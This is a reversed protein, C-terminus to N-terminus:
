ETTKQSSYKGRIEMLDAKLYVPFKAANNEEEKLYKELPQKFWEKLSNDSVFNDAVERCRDSARMRLVGCPSDDLTLEVELLLSSTENVPSTSSVAAADDSAVVGNNAICVSPVPVVPPLGAAASMNPPLDEGTAERSFTDESSSGASTTSSSAPVGGNAHKAVGNSKSEEEDPAGPGASDPGLEQKQAGPSSLYSFFSGVSPTRDKDDAEETATGFGSLFSFGRSIKKSIKEGLEQGQKSIQEGVDQLGGEQSVKSVLDAFEQKQRSFHEGLQEQHKGLMEGFEESKKHLTEGVKEVELSIESSTRSVRASLEERQKSIHESIQPLASDASTPIASSAAEVFSSHLESFRDAVHKGIEQRKEAFQRSAAEAQSEGEQAAPLIGETAHEFRESIAALNEVVSSRLKEAIAQPTAHDHDGKPTPKRIEAVNDNVLVVTDRPRVKEWMRGIFEPIGEDLQPEILNDAGINLKRLDELMLKITEHLEANEKKLDNQEAELDVLAQQMGETSKVLRVATAKLEDDSLKTVVEDVVEKDAGEAM